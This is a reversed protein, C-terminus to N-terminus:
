MCVRVCQPKGTQKWQCTHAHLGLGYQTLGDSLAYLRNEHHVLHVPGQKLQLQLWILEILGELTNHLVNVDNDGGISLILTSGHPVNHHICM